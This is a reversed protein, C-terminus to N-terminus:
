KTKGGCKSCKNISIKLQELHKCSQCTKEIEGNDNMNAHELKRERHREDTIDGYM